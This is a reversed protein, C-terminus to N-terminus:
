TSQMSMVCFETTVGSSETRVMVATVGSTSRNIYSCSVNDPTSSNASVQVGPAATFRGGPYTVSVQTRINAVTVSFFSVHGRMLGRNSFGTEILSGTRSDLRGNDYASYIGSDASARTSAEGNIASQLSSDASARTSAESSDASARTSAESSISSQLTTQAASLEAYVASRGWATWDSASYKARYYTLATQGAFSAANTGGASIFMQFVATGVAVVQLIGNLNTSGPGNTWSSTTKYMGPVLLTNADGGFPSGSLADVMVGSLRAIPLIGQTLQSADTTPTAGAPLTRPSWHGTSSSGVWTVVQGDVPPNQSLYDSLGTLASASGTDASITYPDDPAGSGTLTLNVTTTDRVQLFLSDDQSANSIVYPSTPTGTGTVSVGSGAEIVSPTTGGGCNACTPM